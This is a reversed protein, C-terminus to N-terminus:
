ELPALRVEADGQGATAEHFDDVLLVLNEDPLSFVLVVPRGLFLDQQNPFVPADVRRGRDYEVIFLNGSDLSIRDVLGNRDFASGKGRDGVLGFGSVIVVVPSNGDSPRPGTDFAKGVPNGPLQVVAGWISSEDVQFM